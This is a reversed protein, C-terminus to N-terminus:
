RRLLWIGPLEQPKKFGYNEALRNLDQITFGDHIEICMANVLSLWECSQGLLHVEYGEIDVKLLDIRKWGLKKMLTPVSLSDVRLTAGLSEGKDMAVKHGYDKPEIQMTVQGDSVGVAAAFVTASMSNLEINKKLINLNDPMPEVLAVDANPYKRILFIGTFGANAGLDLITEPDKLLPLDYYLHNFVEGLIFNDAGNNDRVMLKVRDVPKRYKFDIIYNRRRWRDPLKESYILMMLYIFDKVSAVILMANLINRFLWIPNIM